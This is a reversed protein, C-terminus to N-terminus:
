DIFEKFFGSMLISEPTKYEDNYMLRCKKKKKIEASKYKRPIIDDFFDKVSTPVM